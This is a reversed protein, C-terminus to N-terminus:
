RYFLWVAVFRQAYLRAQRSLSLKSLGAKRKFQDAPIEATRLGRRIAKMTMEAGLDFGNAELGLERIAELDCGKLLTTFDRLDSRFFATKMVLNCLLNAVRKTIPYGVFRCGPLFRSASVVQYGNELKQFMPLIYKVDEPMDGMLIIAYRGRAKELGLRIASGVGTAYTRHLVRLFRITQALEYLIHTTRDTSDYVVIIESSRAISLLKGSTSRIVQVISESENRTPIIVSLELEMRDSELKSSVNTHGRTGNM